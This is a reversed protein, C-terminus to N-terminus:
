KCKTQNAEKKDTNGRYSWLADCDLRRRRTSERVPAVSSSLFRPGTCWDPRLAYVVDLLHREVEFRCGSNSICRRIDDQVCRHPWNWLNFVRPPFGATGHFQWALFPVVLVTQHSPSSPPPLLGCEFRVRRIICQTAGCGHFEVTPCYRV